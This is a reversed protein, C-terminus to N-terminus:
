FGVSYAVVLSGINVPPFLDFTQQVGTVYSPHGDGFQRIYEGRISWQGPTNQVAFGLTAGLTVSQLPGLRQDSSVFNPLPDGQVLGFRFFDAQSQSYYRVHPMVYENHELERRYKVDITNSRVGWDDWYYRDSLYLVDRAFHYVTSALVDRRDRRDPRKETVQGVTLGSVPDMLSVVKYPETLYGREVSRSGNLAVMWRRSLIQSVGLMGSNVDKPNWDTGVIIVSDSLALRTGGTPFVYDQNYGAGVTVTTLKRLLELSMKGNLGLSQYDRERSFHAGLAPTIMGFPRLWNGDLAVRADNFPATPIAGPDVEGGGGGGGSAATVTHVAHVDEGGGQTPPPIVGSPLAGSPSAGTIVDLGIQGSIIQGSPSIRTVRATPEVVKARAQEGYLLM